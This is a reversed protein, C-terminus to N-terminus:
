KEECLAKAGVKSVERPEPYATHARRKVGNQESLPLSQAGATRRVSVLLNRSGHRLHMSCPSHRKQRKVASFAPYVRQIKSVSVISNGSLGECVRLLEWSPSTKSIQWRWATLRSETLACIGAGILTESLLSFTVELLRGSMGSEPSCLVM